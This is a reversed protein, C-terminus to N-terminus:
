RCEDLITECKRKRKRISRYRKQNALVNLRPTSFWTQTLNLVAAYWRVTRESAKRPDIQVLLKTGPDKTKLRGHHRHSPHPTVKDRKGSVLWPYQDMRPTEHRSCLNPFPFIDAHLYHMYSEMCQHPSQQEKKESTHELFGKM